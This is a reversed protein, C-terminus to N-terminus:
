QVCREIVINKFLIVPFYYIKFNEYQNSCMNQSLRILFLRESVSGSENWNSLLLTDSHSIKIVNTKVLIHFSVRSVQKKQIARVAVWLVREGGGGANCYPHFFGLVCRGGVSARYNRRRVKLWLRLFLLTLAILIVISVAVYLLCCLITMQFFYGLNLQQSNFFLITCSFSTEKIIIILIQTTM